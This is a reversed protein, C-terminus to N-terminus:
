TKSWDYGAGVISWERPYLRDRRAECVDWWHQRVKNISVKEGYANMFYFSKPYEKRNRIIDEVVELSIIYTM